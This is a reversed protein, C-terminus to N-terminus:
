INKVHFDDLELNDLISRIREKDQKKLKESQSNDRFDYEECGLLQVRVLIIM